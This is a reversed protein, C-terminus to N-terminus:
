SSLKWLTIPRGYRGETQGSKMVQGAKMLNTLSRRVSTLPGHSLLEVATHIDEASVTTHPHRRMYELVAADQRGVIERYEKLKDGSASTTNYFTGASTRKEVADVLPPWCVRCYDGRRHCGGCGFCKLWDTM